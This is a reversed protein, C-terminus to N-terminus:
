SSKIEREARRDLCDLGRYIAYALLEYVAAVAVVLFCGAFGNLIFAGADTDLDYFLAEARELSHSLGLRVTNVDDVYVYAGISVGVILASLLRSFLRTAM